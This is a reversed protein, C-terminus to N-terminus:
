QESRVECRRAHADVWEQVAPLALQSDNVNADQQGAACAHAKAAPNFRRNSGSNSSGSTHNSAGEKLMSCDRQFHPGGCVFCRCASSYDNGKDVSAHETKPESGVISATSSPSFPKKSGKNEYKYVVLTVPGKPRGDSVHSALCTDIVASLEAPRLRGGNEQLLVFDLCSKPIYDKLRDSCILDFLREYSGNIKHSRLYFTLANALKSQLTCYSEDPVKQLAYFRERLQLRTIRFENL